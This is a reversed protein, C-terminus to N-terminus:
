IRSEPVFVIDGPQLVLDDRRGDIIEKLSLEITKTSGDTGVRRTLKVRTPAAFPTLGGALSVAQVLTLRGQWKFSGPEKVQGLVSVERNQRAKVLVTVSPNHLYGDALKTEIATAVESATKGAVAVEGVFPFNIAGAENVPYDGAFRDEDFVRITLEDGPRLAGSDAESVAPPLTVQQNRDCGPGVALCALLLAWTAFSGLPAVQGGFFADVCNEIYRCRDSVPVPRRLTASSEDPSSSLDRM